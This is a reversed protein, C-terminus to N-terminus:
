NERGFKSKRIARAIQFALVSPVANGIQQFWSSFPGQFFYDDPFSQVRAAERPTLGRAQVPHIYMNCDLRMHATITKCPQGAVLKYYKDKFIHSRNKYPMIDQISPHDSKGGQPLRRFIEIDRENNYRAKHNFIIKPKKGSNIFLLYKDSDCDFPRDITLGSSENEIDTRGIKKRAQLKRLGCLADQLAHPPPSIKSKDIIRIIEDIHAYDMMKNDTAEIGIFFVRIRSQPIGFDLADLIAMRASYGIREFDEIIQSSIKSIGRVNEMVFIRPALLAICEVFFKYLENRPDDILRQRNAESFGQCPPGGILATPKQQFIEKLEASNNELKRVIERIDACVIRDKPIHPHNFKFTSIAHPDSDLVFSPVFGAKEFGITMGGPGCFLDAVTPNQRLKLPYKEREDDKYRSCYKKVICRDCKPKETCIERAHREFVSTDTVEPTLSKGFIRDFISYQSGLTLTHERSSSQLDGYVIKLICIIEDVIRNMHKM